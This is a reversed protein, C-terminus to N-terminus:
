LLNLYSSLAVVLSQGYTHINESRVYSYQQLLEKHKGQTIVFKISLLTLDIVFILRFKIHACERKGPLIKYTM